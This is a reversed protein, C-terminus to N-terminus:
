KVDQVEQPPEDTCPGEVCYEHVESDSHLLCFGDDDIYKCKVM